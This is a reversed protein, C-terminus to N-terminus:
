CSTTLIAISIHPEIHYFDIFDYEKLNELDDKTADAIACTSDELFAKIMNEMHENGAWLGFNKCLLYYRNYTSATITYFLGVHILEM